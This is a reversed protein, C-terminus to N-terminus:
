SIGHNERDLTVFLSSVSAAALLSLLRPLAAPQLNGPMRGETLAPLHGCLPPALLRCRGHAGAAALYCLGVRHSLQVLPYQEVVYLVNPLQRLAVVLVQQWAPPQISWPLITGYLVAFMHRARLSAMTAKQLLQHPQLPSTMEIRGHGWCEVHAAGHSNGGDGAAFCVGAIRTSPAAAGSSGKRMGNTRCSVNRGRHLTHHLRADDVFILPWRSTGLPQSCTLHQWVYWKMRRSCRCQAKPWRSAVQRRTSRFGSVAIM